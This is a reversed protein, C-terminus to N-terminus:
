LCGQVASSSCFSAISTAALVGGESIDLRRFRVLPEIERRMDLIALVGGGEEVREDLAEDRIASRAEIMRSNIPYANNIITVNGIYMRRNAPIATLTEDFQNCIIDRLMFLVM